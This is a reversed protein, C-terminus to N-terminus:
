ESMSHRVENKVDLHQKNGTGTKRESHPKSDMKNCVTESETRKSTRKEGLLPEDMESRQGNDNRFAEASKMEKVVSNGVRTNSPNENDKINLIMFETKSPNAVLGNM